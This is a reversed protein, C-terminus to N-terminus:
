GYPIGQPVNHDTIKKHIERDEASDSNGIMELLPTYMMGPSNSNVRIRKGAYMIGTVKSFHIVAAKASAYAVQPKGLYRM